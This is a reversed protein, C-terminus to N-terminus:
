EASILWDIISTVDSINVIGDLDVDAADQQIDGIGSLLFDILDTVDTIDTQGSGNVDGKVTVPTTSTATITARKIGGSSVVDGTWSVFRLQATTLGAPVPLSLSLQHTSVGATTPVCTVSDLPLGEGDELVLTLSAKSLDFKNDKFYKTYWTVNANIVDIGLCSFQPSKLSLVLGESNVYVIVRGGAIISPSLEVNPNNYTWGEYDDSNFQPLQAAMTFAAMALIIPLFIRKMKNITILNLKLAFIHIIDNDLM